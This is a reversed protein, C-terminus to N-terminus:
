RLEYVRIYDVALKASTLNSDINGGMGGGMALNIIINQPNNFPWELEGNLKDYKFYIQEDMYGSIGDPKWVIGYTHFQGTM